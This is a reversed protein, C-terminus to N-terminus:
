EGAARAYFASLEEIEKRTLSRAMNRMQAHSDNRREGSAFAASQEVLYDKPMGELWPTGLRQEIGGHCSACPAINRMPDGVKVLAPVTSMDTVPTNRPRPLRGCLLGRPRPHGCREFGDLARADRHGAPRRASLIAPLTTSIGQGIEAQSVVVTVQNLDGSAAATSPAQLLVAAPAPLTFGLAFGGVVAHVVFERRAPNAPFHTVDIDQM